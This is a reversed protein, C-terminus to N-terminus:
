QRKKWRKYETSQVIIGHGANLEQAGQAIAQQIAGRGEYGEDIFEIFDGEASTHIWGRQPNGTTTNPAKIQTLYSNAM